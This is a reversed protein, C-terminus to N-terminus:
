DAESARERDTRGDDGERRAKAQARLGAAEAARPPIAGALLEARLELARAAREGEALRAHIREAVLGDMTTKAVQWALRFEHALLTAFPQPLGMRAFADREACARAVAIRVILARDFRGSARIASKLDAWSPPTRAEGRHGPAPRHAPDACPPLEGRRSQRRAPITATVRQPAELNPAM